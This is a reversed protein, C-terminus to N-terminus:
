WLLHGSRSLPVTPIKVVPAVEKRPYHTVLMREAVPLRERAIANAALLTMTVHFMGDFTTVDFPSAVSGLRNGELGLWGMGALVGLWAVLLAQPPLPVPPTSIAQEDLSQYM